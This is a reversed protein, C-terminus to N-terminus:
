VSAGSERRESHCELQVPQATVRDGVRHLDPRVRLWDDLTVPASVIRTGENDSM